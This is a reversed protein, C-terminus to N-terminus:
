GEVFPKAAHSGCSTQFQGLVSICKRPLGCEECLYLSLTEVGHILRSSEVGGHEVQFQFAGLKEMILVIRVPIEGGKKQAKAIPQPKSALHWLLDRWGVGCNMSAVPGARFHSPLGDPIAAM